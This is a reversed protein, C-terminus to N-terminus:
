ARNASFGQRAYSTAAQHKETWIQWPASGRSWLDNLYLFDRYTDMAYWFGRHCYAMLQGDRALNSLLGQELICNEDLYSFVERRFVFFGGSIWEVSQPKERFQAVRGEPTIELGGFRSFPRIATVTAIRGHANHFALLSHVDIDAVGDGYTLMFCDGDIHQEVRKLRGGTMTDLGTNVLTVTFDREDHDNHYRVREGCSGLTISFDSVMSKYNLFYEKIIKGRYGLCLVFETFGYHAYIKMIHWLIPRGGIEVMPKPRYETEERLRTGLGGCLIVTKM